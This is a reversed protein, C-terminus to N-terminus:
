KPTPAPIPTAVPATSLSLITVKSGAKPADSTQAILKGRSIEDGVMDIQITAVPASAGGGYYKSNCPQGDWYYTENYINFTDGVHVGVNNGGLMVVENQDLVLVRSYWDGEANNNLGGYLANVGSILAKNTVNALPTQYYASPGISFGSVDLTFSVQTRTQNATVNSAALVTQTLPHTAMMSLDLQAWDIKLGLTPVGIANLAGAATFGIDVGAGGIMEFSNVSGGIMANPLNILCEANQSYVPTDPLGANATVARLISKDKASVNFVKSDVGANLNSTTAVPPAYQMSFHDSNQLVAYVQQNAVYQFDFSGGQPLAIPPSVIKSMAVLRKLERQSTGQQQCSQNGMMLGATGFLLATKAVNQISPM